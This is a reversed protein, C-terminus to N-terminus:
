NLDRYLKAAAQTDGAATLREACLLLSNLVTPQVAPPAQERAAVLAAIAENGGIRGLSSAAAAALAVDTGSLLPLLLPVAATDRRWGVSDVLGAKILGSTKELAQRLAAGAEPFVMGELAYRAAYGTREEGLLARCRQVGVTGVSRLKQCAACKQPISANTSRPSSTQEEDARALHSCPLM